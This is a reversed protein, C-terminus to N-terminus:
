SRKTKRSRKRKIVWKELKEICNNEDCVYYGRAPFRQGLDFIVEGEILIFRILNDKELKKRCVVCTRLPKHGARSNRNVM